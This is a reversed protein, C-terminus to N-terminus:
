YETRRATSSWFHFFGIAQKWSRWFRELCCRDRDNSGAHGFPWVQSSLSGEERVLLLCDVLLPGLRSSCVYWWRTSVCLAASLISWFIAFQLILWADIIAAHKCFIHVSLCLPVWEVLFLNASIKFASIYLISAACEIRHVWKLFDSLFWGLCAVNDCYRGTLFAVISHHLRFV